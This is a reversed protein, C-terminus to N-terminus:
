GQCKRGCDDGLLSSHTEDASRQERKCTFLFLLRGKDGPRVFLTGRAEIPQLAYASCEGRAMSILSGKRATEIEGKYPEYALFIHNLIGEGHTDNKFEGAVYGLLGRSPIELDIRVRDGAVPNYNKIDAKRKTLKEIVTGADAERVDVMVSEIPELVKKTVADRKLVATPPFVSMEFGERRLTEIVIGLHLVGRGRLEILEPQAPSHLVHLSINTQAEADLRQKLLNSTVQSGETGSLPSDNPSVFMSITPPDLPM